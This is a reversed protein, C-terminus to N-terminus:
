WGSGKFSVRLGIAPETRRTMQKAEQIVVLDPNGAKPEARDWDLRNLSVTLALVPWKM